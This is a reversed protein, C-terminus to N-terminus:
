RWYRDRQRESTRYHVFERARYATSTHGGEKRIKLYYVAYCMSALLSILGGIVACYFSWSLHRRTSNRLWTRDTDARTGFLVCAVIMLIGPFIDNKIYQLRIIVFFFIYLNESKEM